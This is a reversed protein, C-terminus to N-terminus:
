HIKKTRRVYQRVEKVFFLLFVQELHSCGCFIYRIPEEIKEAKKFMNFFKSPAPPKDSLLFKGSHHDWISHSIFSNVMRTLCDQRSFGQVCFDIELCQLVWTDNELFFVLNLRKANNLHEYFSNM